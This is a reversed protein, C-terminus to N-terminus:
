QLVADKELATLQADEMMIEYFYGHGFDKDLVVKGKFTAIDGNEVESSTTITLDYDGGYKSGDQIHVWNRKMVGSTYKVVVGRVVVVEGEYKERNGFLEALNIGGEAAEVPEVEMNGVNSSGKQRKPAQMASAFPEDSIYQIFYIMDFTKDLEKSKFNSMEMWNDFYYTGGTEMADDRPIAGWYVDGEEKVKLYTYSSTQIVEKVVVERLNPNNVNHSKQQQESGCSILLAAALVVAITTFMRM